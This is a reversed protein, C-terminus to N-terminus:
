MRLHSLLYLDIALAELLFFLAVFPLPLSKNFGVERTKKFTKSTEVGLWVLNVLPVVIFLGILLGFGEDTQNFGGLMDRRGAEFYLIPLQTLTIAIARFLNM